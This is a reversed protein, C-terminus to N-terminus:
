AELLPRDPGIFELDNSLQMFLLTIGVNSTMQDVFDKEKAERPRIKLFMTKMAEIARSPTGGRLLCRAGELLPERFCKWLWPRQFVKWTKLIVRLDGKFGVVTAQAARLIQTSYCSMGYVLRDKFLTEDEGRRILVAEEQDEECRQQGLLRYPGGNDDPPRGHLFFFVPSRAYAPDQLLSRVYERQAACPGVLKYRWKAEQMHDILARACEALGTSVGDDWDSTIVIV